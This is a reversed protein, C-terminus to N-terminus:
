ITQMDLWMSGLEAQPLPMQCADTFKWWRQNVPSNSQAAMDKQFHNGTYLFQYFLYPQNDGFELLFIDFRPINSAGIAHSVGPWVNDHLLRYEAEKDVKLGTVAHHWSTSEVV